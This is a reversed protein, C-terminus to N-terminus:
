FTVTLKFNLQRATLYNPVPYYQNSYDAVWIYSVVNKYDFLNFVELTVMLDDIHRMLASNKIREFRSLQISNGWDVRFYAPYYHAQSFDRQRPYTFPLGSGVIFNLSMRWFPIHPIDDQFFLKFSVRQDTPRALWGYNDGLIDEQTKMLSLSAWSELGEVVEGSLRLSLGTAYGVADNHADYRIRLNDIRYPILNTLYKYYLDATLKFPSKGIRFNWDLTGTLQYSQQAKVAHNLTGDDYRYERYFPAQSYVGAALRFLMDREWNPKYNLSMRPSFLLGRNHSSSDDFSRERSYNSSNGTTPDNSFDISYGQLRAGVVLSILDERGTYFDFNRQVFASARNTGVAHNSRCFLQLMPPQASNSSDGAVPHIYPMAFGASDVWKWERMRDRVEEHQLKLGWHLNGLRAYHSGRLETSYINTHLYNRAHELYSGIGRDFKETEGNENVAGVNLEYLWYQSLIDYVEAEEVSMFSNIWRLQFDESPRYNCTLAGLLTTYQDQEEGEYFVSFEMAEQYGGFTTTQSEPVLGYRNRSAIALLSLDLKDSARYHLLAQLDSYATTYNGKTDLSRLLYRNSHRRLGIAYSLKEGAAGQLSLTAGLLSLSAHGRFERPTGYHIDLVSAMRDGYGADFGGPSFLIRGVLDPNIISTGEQQGSRILQPRYVEVQNIYVLNEDFSGGRVSYQSSLENNSSVDPLTKLLGEVGQQPGTTHEIREVSIPTFTTNRAHEERITVADLMEPQVELSFTLQYPKGAAFRMMTDLVQYGYAQVRLPLLTDAPLTLMFRGESDGAAGRVPETMAAVTAYPVPKGKEGKVVGRVTAERQAEATLPLLLALM